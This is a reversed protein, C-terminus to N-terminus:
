TKFNNPSSDRQGVTPVDKHFVWQFLLLFVEKCLLFVKKSEKCDSMTTSGVSTTAKTSPCKICSTSRSMPQYTAIPCAICVELGNSSYTGPQCIGSFYAM